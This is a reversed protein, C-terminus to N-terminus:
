HCSKWIDQLKLLPYSSSLKEALILHSLPLSCITPSGWFHSLSILTSFLTFSVPPLSGQALFVQAVSSPPVTPFAPSATAQPSAGPSFIAAPPLTNRAQQSRWSPDLLLKPLWAQRPAPPHLTLVARLIQTRNETGSDPHGLQRRNWSLLISGIGGAPRRPCRCAGAHVVGSGCM